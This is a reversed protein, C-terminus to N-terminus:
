ELTKEIHNLALGIIYDVSGDGGSVHFNYKGSFPNCDFRKRASEVDEFKSFVTYCSKNDSDVNIVLHGVSTEMGFMRLGSGERDELKLAGMQLLGESVGKVFKISDKKLIKKGVVM